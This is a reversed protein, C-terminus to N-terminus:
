TPHDLEALVSSLAPELASAGRSWEVGSLRMEARRRGHATSARLQEEGVTAGVGTKSGARGDAHFLRERGAGELTLEGDFAGFALVAAELFRQLTRDRDPRSLSGHVDALFAALEKGPDRVEKFRRDVLVQLKMKVPNVAAVVALTILVITLDSAAGIVGSFLRQTLAIAAASVGAVIATLLGYVIARNIITDIEYLRYRLVAVGIALPITPFAIIAPTWAIGNTSSDPLLASIVFGIAVAVVVFALATGIWRLQQREVGTSRRARLGLSVVAAAFVAFWPAFFQDPNVVRWLLLDPLVSFPNPVNVAVFSGKLNVDITPGIATLIVLLVLFAIAGRGIRGWQNPPFRGSPLVMALTAYLVFASPGSVAHAVAYVKTLLPLSGDAFSARTADIAPGTLPLQSFSLGLLLWGISTQPRRIALLAGVGAYPVFWLLAFGSSTAVVFGAAVVALLIISAPLGLQRPAISPERSVGEALSPARAVPVSSM